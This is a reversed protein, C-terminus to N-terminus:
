RLACTYTLGCCCSTCVQVDALRAEAEQVSRDTRGDMAQWRLMLDTKEAQLAELSNEACACAERLREQEACGGELERTLETTRLQEALLAAEMRSLM